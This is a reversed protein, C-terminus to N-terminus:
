VGVELMTLCTDRLEMADNTEEVFKAYWMGALATGDLDGRRHGSLGGGSVFAAGGTAAAVLNAIDEGSDDLPGQSYPDARMILTMDVQLAQLQQRYHRDRNHSFSATLENLKDSLASRRKDRKSLPVPPPTPTFNQEHSPGNSSGM